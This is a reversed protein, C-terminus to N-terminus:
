LKVSSVVHDSRIPILRIERWPGLQERYRLEWGETKEPRVPPVYAYDRTIPADLADAISTLGWWQQPFKIRALYGSREEVTKGRRQRLEEGFEVFADAVEDPDAGHAIRWAGTVVGTRGVGAFCHVFIRQGSALENDMITLAQAVEEPTPTAYDTCAVHRFRLGVAACLAQEDEVRYAEHWRGALDRAKDDRERLSLVATLGLDKLQEFAELAIPPQEGRAVRDYAVWGFNRVRGMKWPHSEEQGPM